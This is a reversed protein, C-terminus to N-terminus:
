PTHKTAVITVSGSKEGGDDGADFATPVYFTMSWTVENSESHPLNVAVQGDGAKNVVIDYSTTNTAKLGYIQDGATGNDALAWNLSTNTAYVLDTGVLKVDVNVTGTNTITSYTDSAGWKVEASAAVIGVLWETQTNEIAVVGARVTISVSPNGAFAPVAMMALLAVALVLSLATRRLNRM